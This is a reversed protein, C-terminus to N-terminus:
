RGEEYQQRERKTAKRASILRFQEGRWTFVVVLVAGTPDLALTIFREEDHFGPDPMTLALEDELAVIADAFSVGHKALNLAAKTPDWQYAVTKLTHMM